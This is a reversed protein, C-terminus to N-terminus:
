EPSWPIPSTDAARRYSSRFPWKTTKRHLSDKTELLHFFTFWLSTWCTGFSYLLMGLLEQLYNQQTEVQAYAKYHYERM